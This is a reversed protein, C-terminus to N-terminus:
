KGLMRSLLGRRVPDEVVQVLVVSINDRGGGRRAAEVLALKKMEMTRNSRLIALIDADAVMDSLGDSCMLYIDGPELKYENVDLLVPEEV